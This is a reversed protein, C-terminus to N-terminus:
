HDVSKIQICNRLLIFRSVQLFFLSTWLHSINIALQLWVFDETQRATQSTMLHGTVDHPPRHCRATPQSTTGHGTVDHPPRQRQATPQSAHATVDHPPRHRQATAQSTTLRVLLSSTLLSSSLARQTTTRDQKQLQCIEVVADRQYLLHVSPRAERVGM